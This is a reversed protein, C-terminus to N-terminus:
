ESQVSDSRHLDSDLDLYDLDLYDLDLYDQDLYDLDLYDQDLYDLDGAVEATNTHAYARVASCEPVGPTHCM